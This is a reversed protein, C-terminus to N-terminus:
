FCLESTQVIALVVLNPSLTGPSELGLLYKSSLSMQTGLILLCICFETLLAVIYNLVTVVYNSWYSQVASWICSYLSTVATYPLDCTLVAAEMLIVLNVVMFQM